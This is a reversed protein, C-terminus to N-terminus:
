KAAKTKMEMIEDVVSRQDERKAAEKAASAAPPPAATPAPMASGAAARPPAPTQAVPGEEGARLRRAEMAHTASAPAGEGDRPAASREGGLPAAAENRSLDARDRAADSSLVARRAFEPEAEAS